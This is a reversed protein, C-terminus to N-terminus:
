ALGYCGTSAPWSQSTPSRTVRTATRAPGTTFGAAVKDAWRMELGRESTADAFPKFQAAPGGMHTPSGFALADAVDALKLVEENAFRGGVGM